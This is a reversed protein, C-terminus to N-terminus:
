ASKLGLYLFCAPRQVFQRLDFEALPLLDVGNGLNGHQGGSVLEVEKLGVDEALLLVLELFLIQLGALFLYPLHLLPLLALEALDPLLHLAVLLVLAEKDVSAADLM